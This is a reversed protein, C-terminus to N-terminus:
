ATPEGLAEGEIGTPEGEVGPEPLIETPPEQTAIPEEATGETAAGEAPIEEAPAEAAEEGAPAAPAPPRLMIVLVGGAGGEDRSLFAATGYYDQYAGGSAAVQMVLTAPRAGEFDDFWTWREIAGDARPYAEFTTEGVVIAPAGEAPFDATGVPTAGEASGAVFAPDISLPYLNIIDQDLANLYWFALTVVDTQAPAPPAATAAPTAAPAQTPQAPAPTEAASPTEAAPPPTEAAPTGAPPSAEQRAAVPLAGTVTALLLVVIILLCQAAFGPRQM